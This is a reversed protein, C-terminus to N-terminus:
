QPQVDSPPARMPRGEGSSNGGGGSGGFRRRREGRPQDGGEGMPRPRDADAGPAPQPQADTTQASPADPPPAVDNDDRRRGNSEEVKIGARELLKRGQESELILVENGAKVGELVQAHSENTAGLKVKVPTAGKEGRVFVYRDRGAVYISGLPVALVNRLREIYITAPATMGPKLNPPTRSLKLEV